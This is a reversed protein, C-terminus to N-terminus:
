DSKRAQLEEEALEYRCMFGAGVVGSVLWAVIIAAGTIM